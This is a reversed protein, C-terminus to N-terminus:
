GDNQIREFRRSQSRKEAQANLVDVVFRRAFAAQAFSDDDDAEIEVFVAGGINLAQLDVVDNDAREDVAFQARDFVLAREDIKQGRDIRARNNKLDHAVVAAFM